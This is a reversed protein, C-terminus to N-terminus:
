KNVLKRIARMQNKGVKFVLCSVEQMANREFVVEIEVEPNEIYFKDKSEAKLEGKNGRDKFYLVGDELLVEFNDGPKLEYKGPYEKLTEEDLMVSKKEEFVPNKELQEMKSVLKKLKEINQPALEEAVEDICYNANFDNYYEISSHVTKGSVVAAIQDINLPVRYVMVADILYDEMENGLRFSLPVVQEKCTLLERNDAFLTTEEKLYNHTITIFALSKKLEASEKGYYISDNTVKISNSGNTHVVSLLKGNYHEDTKLIVTFSHMVNTPIINLEKGPQLRLSEGDFSFKPLQYFESFIDPNIAYFMERHGINDPHADDYYYPATIQGTGDDIPGLLNVMPYGLDNLILNIRKTYDYDEASYKVKSYCSGIVPKIGNAKCIDIIKKMGEVFANMVSDKDGWEIGENGLSLGIVCYDPKLPLLDTKIRALVKKTNDGPISVNVVKYKSNDLARALRFQYGNKMDNKKEYSTVFGAAVSSGLVAIVTTDNQCLVKASLILVLIITILRKM